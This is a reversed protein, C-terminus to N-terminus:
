NNNNKVITKASSRHQVGSTVFLINKKLESFIISSRVYYSGTM